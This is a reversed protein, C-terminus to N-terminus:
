VTAGVSGQWGDYGAITVLRDKVRFNDSDPDIWTVPNSGKGIFQYARFQNADVLFYDDADDLADSVILKIGMGNVVNIQNDAGSLTSGILEGATFALEPPVVLHTPTCGLVVGADSTTKRLTTIMTQLTAEALAGSLRNDYVGTDLAHNSSFLPDGDPGTDAFGGALVGMADDYFKRGAARGIQQVFEALTTRDYFDAALESLQFALHSSALTYTKKHGAGMAAFDFADGEASKASYEGPSNIGVREITLTTAPRVRVIEQWSPDVANIMGDIYVEEMAPDLQNAHTATTTVAM